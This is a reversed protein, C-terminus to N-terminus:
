SRTMARSAAPLASAVGATRLQRTVGGGSDVIRVPGSASVSLVEAVNVKSAFWGPAVNSHESSLSSPKSGQVEGCVYVPRAIVSCVNKRREIPASPLTSAVGASYLQVIPMRVAGTAVIVAFGASTVSSRVGENSNM